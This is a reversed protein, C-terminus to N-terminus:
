VELHAPGLHAPGLHDPAEHDRAGPRQLLGCLGAVEPTVRWPSHRLGAREVWWGGPLELSRRSIAPPGETGALACSCANHLCHWPGWPQPARLAAARAAHHSSSLHSRRASFYPVSDRGVPRPTGVAAAQSAGRQSPELGESEAPPRQEACGQGAAGPLGGM